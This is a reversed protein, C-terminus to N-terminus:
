FGSEWLVPAGVVGFGGLGFDGQCGQVFGEAGDGFGCFEVEDDGGCIGVTEEIAGEVVGDRAGEAHPM